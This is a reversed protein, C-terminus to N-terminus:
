KLRKWSMQGDHSVTKVHTNKSQNLRFLSASFHMMINPVVCMHCLMEEWLVSDESAKNEALNGSLSRMNTGWM